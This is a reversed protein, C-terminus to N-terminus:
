PQRGNDRHAPARTRRSACGGARPSSPIAVSLLTPPLSAESRRIEPCTPIRFVQRCTISAPNEISGFRVAKIRPSHFWSSCRLDRLFIPHFIRLKRGEHGEHGEHHFIGPSVASEEPDPPRLRTKGGHSRLGTAGAAKTVATSVWTAVRQWSRTPSILDGGVGAPTGDYLCPRQDAVGGHPMSAKRSAPAGRDAQITRRSGGHRGFTLYGLRYLTLSKPVTRRCTTHM